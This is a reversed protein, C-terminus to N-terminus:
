ICFAFILLWSLYIALVVITAHSNLMGSVDDSELYKNGKQNRWHGVPQKTAYQKALVYKQTKFIKKKYNIELRM